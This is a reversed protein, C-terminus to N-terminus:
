SQKIRSIAILYLWSNYSPPPYTLDLPLRVQTMLRDENTGEEDKFVIDTNYNPVLDKFRPDDRTIGGEYLGSAGLTNESVNPVHQKYVLPTLKQPTKRRWAGRGPGCTSTLEATILLLLLALCVEARKELRSAMPSSSLDMLSGLNEWVCLEKREVIGRKWLFRRSFQEDNVDGDGNCNRTTRGLRRPRKAEPGWFTAASSLLCRWLCALRNRFVIESKDVDWLFCCLM